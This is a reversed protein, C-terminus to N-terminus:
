SEYHKTQACTIAVALADAADDPRPIEKLNLIRKVMEQVQLKSAQGYSTLAQKVQLPTLEFVPIGLRGAALMVVGRAESVKMATKVNKAFYVSEVGIRAPKYKKIITVIENYIKLLRESFSLKLSTKICGYDIVQLKYSTVQLEIVGYGTTAIGPDIGLIIM